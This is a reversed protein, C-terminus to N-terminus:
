IAEFAAMFTSKKLEDYGSIRRLIEEKETDLTYLTEDLDKRRNETYNYEDLAKMNVPELARMRKELREAQSKLQDVTGQSPPEYNPNEALIQQIEAQLHEVERELDFHRLKREEREEALHIVDQDIKTKKVEVSTIKEHIKDKTEQLQNLELGLETVRKEVEAI